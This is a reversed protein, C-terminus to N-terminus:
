PDICHDLHGHSVVIADIREHPLYRQVNALVGTGFDVVLNFGDHRLLYGSAAGGTGPWAAFSGLVTLEM